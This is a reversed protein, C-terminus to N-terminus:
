GYFSTVRKWSGGMSTTRTPKKDPGRFVEYERTVEYPRSQAPDRHQIDELRQLILTLHPPKIETTSPAAQSSSALTALLVLCPLRVPAVIRRVKRTRLRYQVECGQTAMGLFIRFTWRPFM